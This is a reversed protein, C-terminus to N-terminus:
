GHSVEGHRPASWAKHSRFYDPLLNRTILRRLKVGEPTRSRFALDVIGVESVMLLKQPGGATVVRVLQREDEELRSMADRYKVIGLVDCVDKAVFWPAGREDTRVRVERGFLEGQLLRGFVPSQIVSLESKM